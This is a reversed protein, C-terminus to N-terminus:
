VGGESVPCPPVPWQMTLSARQTGNLDAGGERGGFLSFSSGATGRTHQGYVTMVRRPHMAVALPFAGGAIGNPLPGDHISQVVQEAITELSLAQPAAPPSRANDGVAPWLLM